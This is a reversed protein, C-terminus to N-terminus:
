FLIFFRLFKLNHSSLFFFYIHFPRRSFLIRLIPYKTILFYRPSNKRSKLGTKSDKPTKLGTGTAVPYGSKYSASGLEALKTQLETTRSWTFPHSCTKDDERRNQDFCVTSM